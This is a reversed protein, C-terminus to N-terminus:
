SANDGNNSKEPRRDDRRRDDRRRDDRRRDDRRRDDRRRDDRRRDDRRRDDRRRDDRRRDDRGRDDRRRDDRRRDDRSRDDRRRDDRRRDDRRRDDRRRDDRRRDDRRRDDRRRDDRGRDDRSFEPKNTRRRTDRFKPKQFRSFRRGSLNEKGAFCIVFEAKIKDDKFKEYLETFTGYHHSEYAMTLNFGIYARRAPMVEKCAALVPLLRYPTELLVITSNIESLEQLEFKREEPKRNLFGAFYFSSMDMGSRVLATMISSVGPVIEIELNEQIAMDVLVSGPDAFLPTGCDSVLAVKKGSKILAIVEPATDSENQENLPILEKHLNVERLIRAGEKLEECVVIDAIKIVDIARLTYDSKNGIPTSVVFLKGKTSPSETNNNANKM